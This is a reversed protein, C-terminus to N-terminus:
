REWQKLKGVTMLLDNRRKEFLAFMAIIVAGLVIGCAYWIWTQELDVAAHWIMATIDLLLFVIGLWLFSRIRLLLGALVGAVSLLMLVLPLRWDKGLGAIFMDATSSLYIVSLALYRFATSQAASLREHNLYEAVLAALAIPILWLQPHHLFEIGSQHLAVWLGINAALAALGVCGASRRMYAMSGYFTSMLFWLVPTRGIIAYASAPDPAFWFGLAPLLPLLLATRELPESLVPLRRRHFLESLGAGAFAIAMVILMWYREVIGLRFLWPMSMRLHLGILTLLVEAAYVYAQRGRDDLGLPDLQRSVALVICTIILIALTAAVIAIAWSAMPTGQNWDCLYVEQVLVIALAALTLGGIYTAARRGTAIWDSPRPLLKALGFGSLLTMMTAAVLLIASRHLWPAQGTPSSATSDLVAWGTGSMLLLGAMLAAYQWRFRWPQQSQWAMLITAGLLMLAGAGGAMRGTFGFLVMNRGAGDFAFDISVWVALGAAVAAFIAQLGMFWGTSWRDPESAIRFWPWFRKGKGLLWGLLAAVLIFASLKWAAQWCLERPSPRLSDCLMALATLGAVYLGCLSFRALRDWLTLAISAAVAALAIWALRAVAAHPVATLSYLVGQAALVAMATVAVAAALHAFVLPRQEVSFHPVGRPVVLQLVTWVVSAAALCLVCVHILERIDHVNGWALWAVVGVVSFLLGSLFVHRPSRLWLAVIAAAVSISGIARIAWWAGARDVPSYIVALTVALMGMLTVWGSILSPPFESQQHPVDVAAGPATVPSQWVFGVGLVCLAAAAWAMALMHYELWAALQPSNFHTMECAVLVGIELLVGGLVHSLNGPLTQWLYWAAAAACLLLATWGAADALEGMWPPLYAPAQLLRVVPTLLLVANAAAPLTIQLALLPGAGLTRERPEYLWKRGTLWALAVASSTIVNAQVLELWCQSFTLHRTEDFYCVVLSAAVNVGLAAAFAWGERRQWIAMAAGAMSAVAIAAAAWLCEEIGEHFFAAKLGLVVAAIGAIRVWTVAAHSLSQPWDRRASPSYNQAVWWTILTILLAYTAWGLMLTRYAWNPDIPLGARLELGRVVCAALGIVAMGLLGVVDFSPRVGKQVCRYVGAATAAALAMWGLPMGANIPWVSGYPHFWALVIIAAVLLITNGLYGMALQVNMLIAARPDVARRGSLPDNGLATERWVDCWKRAVLWVIAWVAATITALQIATVLEHIGFTRTPDPDTAVSLAYGLVAAMEVVLGASFAYGASSERLAHGVLGLIILVLPILYSLNPSFHDFFSGVAPGGPTVSAIQLVAALFTLVIVPWATIGLLMIRALQPGHTDLAVSTKALRCWALLRHRQWIFASCVLFCIALGWRLASGVAVQDAFRGALLCPATIALLLAGLLEAARWREWLAGVLVTALVGLLIWGAPGGAMPLADTVAINLLGPCLERAIGPTVYAVALLTQLLIILHRVIWDVTPERSALLRQAAPSGRFAIRAAIWGLSLMGLAIGYTQLSRPDRLDEPFRVVWSQTQLWATAAVAAAATLVWQGATFLDGNRHLWALLLWIAALWFLCGALAATGQGTAFLPTHLTWFPAAALLNWGIYSLRVRQWRFSVVICAVGYFAYLWAAQLADTHSGIIALTTVALLAVAATVGCGLGYAAAHRSWGRRVFWAAITAFVLFLGCLSTASRASLILHLMTPGLSGDHILLSGTQLQRLGADTLLHFGALYALALCVMTGAHAVPFRYRLSIFILSAANVLGVAVLGLPQPWILGLSVLQLVIGLLAVTTGATRYVELSQERAMGRMIRLGSALIPWAALALSPALCYLAIRLGLSESGKAIVIGIAVVGAFAAMGLLTFTAGADAPKLRRVPSGVGHGVMAGALLLAPVCNAALLVADSSYNGLLRTALLVLASNGVIALVLPWRRGAVLVDAALASLWAFIALSVLETAATQWGWANRSLSVMAVFNLPVLLTAIVLLGRGTAALKWRHYAFLGLGFVLSSYGVFILFKLYTEQLTDWFSVVLALSSGVILLGGVLVGILEAWRINREEMFGALVEAWSEQPPAAPQRPSPIPAPQPKALPALTQKSAVHEVPRPTSVKSLLALPAVPAAVPPTVAVAPQRIPERVVRAAVAEATATAFPKEPAAPTLLGQRYDRVRSFFEEAEEPKWAGSDRFRQLQRELTDLDALEAALRDNLARGCWDCRPLSASTDKGCFVCKRRRPLPIPTDEVSRLLTALLVWIGHGVLTVVTLLVGIVLLFFGWDHM